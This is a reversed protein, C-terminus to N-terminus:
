DNLCDKLITAIEKQRRSYANKLRFILEETDFPNILFDSAVFYRVVEIQNFELAYDFARRICQDDLSRKLETHLFCQLASLEGSRAATEFVSQKFKMADDKLFEEIDKWRGETALKFVTAQKQIESFHSLHMAKDDQKSEKQLEVNVATVDGDALAHSFLMAIGLIIERRKPICCHNM